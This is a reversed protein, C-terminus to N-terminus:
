SHCRYLVNDFSIMDLVFRMLDRNKRNPSNKPEDGSANDLEKRKAARKQKKAEKAEHDREWKAAEAYDDHWDNKSTYKSQRRRGSRRLSARYKKYNKVDDMTIGMERMRDETMKVRAM